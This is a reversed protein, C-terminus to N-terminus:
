ALSWGGWSAWGGDVAIVEGAVYSALDSALFLAVKAIEEPEGFRRMPTRELVQEQALIGRAMNAKALDTLVTGPAVGNVRVGLPAWECGLARTFMELEGKTSSYCVRNPMARRGAISCVNVIAGSGHPIMWRGAAQCCLLAGRVNVAQMRDWEAVSFEMIPKGIFIAANNVLVDIRGFESMWANEFRRVDKANGVDGQVMIARRGLSRIEEVISESEEGASRAIGVIDAGERAFLTALARGIGRSAGTIAAVKGELLM